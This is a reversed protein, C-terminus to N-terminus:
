PPTRKVPKKVSPKVSKRPPAVRGDREPVPEPRLAKVVLELSQLLLEQRLVFPGAGPPGQQHFKVLQYLPAFAVSWYVEVPVPVLEGNRIARAIFARMIDKIPNGGTKLAKEHLPTYRFQEMFQTAVPNELCYRARNLWQVRLGEEFGMDPHFGQMVTDTLHRMEQLYVQLIMDERDKFYVYLTGPSVKAARAVKHMSLGDFGERVALEMTRLRIAKEKRPDRIRM